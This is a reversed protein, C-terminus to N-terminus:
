VTIPAGVITFLPMGSAYGIAWGYYTGATAPANMYTGWFNGNFNGAFGDAVAPMPSPAVSQSTSFGIAVTTPTTGGTIQLNFINGGTGHTLATGYTGWNATTSPAAATTGNSTGTFASTGGAGVAAVQFDYGTSATLGGITTSTSGLGSSQTWAGGLSTQRYQVTYTSVAGGGSPATWSLPVSTATTTGVTLGTPTNPAGVSPAATT